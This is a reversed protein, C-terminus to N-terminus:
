QNVTLQVENDKETRVERCRVDSIATQKKELDRIAWFCYDAEPLTENSPSSLKGFSRFEEPYHQLAEPVYLIRLGPVEHRARLTTVKVIAEPWRAPAEGAAAEVFPRSKLDVDKQFIQIFGLEMTGIKDKSSLIDNLHRSEGDLQRLVEAPIARGYRQTVRENIRNLRDAILKVSQISDVTTSSNAFRGGDLHSPDQVLVNLRKVSKSFSQKVNVDLTLLVIYGNSFMRELEQGGHVTPLRIEAVSLDNLTALDPNLRYVVGYAEVDPFIRNNRLLEQITKGNVAVSTVTLAIQENPWTGEERIAVRRVLTMTVDLGELKTSVPEFAAAKLPHAQILLLVFIAAALLVKKVIARM